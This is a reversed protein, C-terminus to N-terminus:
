SKDQPLNKKRWFIRKIVYIVLFLAGFLVGAGMAAGDSRDMTALSQSFSMVTDPGMPENDYKGADHFFASVARYLINGIITAVILLGFTYAIERFIQTLTKM